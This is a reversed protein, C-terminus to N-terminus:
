YHSKIPLSVNYDGGAVSDAANALLRLPMVVKRIFLFGLLLTFGVIIAGLTLANSLMDNTQKLAKGADAEVLLTWGMESICMSAGVVEVGQFNRWFGSIEKKSDRCEAVPLTDVKQRLIADKPIDSFIFGDRNVIYAKVTEDKSMDWSLAGAEKSYEGILVRNLESIHLFNAIFGIPRGTTKSLIPASVVISPMESAGARFESVSAGDKDKQISPYSSKGTESDETSALVRGDLSIVDIRYITKDLPQKHASLYKGLQKDLDRKGDLIGQLSSRIEGDTSFDQARRKSMELFAYVMGEYGEALGRNHKIENVRLQEKVDLYDHIFLAFIPLLILVIALLAKQLLSPSGKKM